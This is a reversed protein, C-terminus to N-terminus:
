YWNKFVRQPVKGFWKYRLPGHILFTTCWQNLGHTVLHMRQGKDRRAQQIRLKYLWYRPQITHNSQPQLQEKSLSWNTQIINIGLWSTGGCYIVSNQYKQQSSTSSCWSQHPHHDQTTSYTSKPLFRLHKHLKVLM